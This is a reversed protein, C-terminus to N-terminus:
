AAEAVLPVGDLDQLDAKAARMAEQPSLRLELYIHALIALREEAPLKISELITRMSKDPKNKGGRGVAPVFFGGSIQCRHTVFTKTKLRLKENGPGSVVFRWQVHRDGKARAQVARHPWLQHSM